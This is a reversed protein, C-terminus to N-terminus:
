GKQPFSVYLHSNWDRCSNTSNQNCKAVSRLRTHNQCFRSVQRDVPESGPERRHLHLCGLPLKITGVAFASCLGSRSILAAHAPTSFIALILSVLGNKIWIRVSERHRGGFPFASLLLLNISRYRNIKELIVSTRSISIPAALRIVYKVGNDYCSVSFNLMDGQDLRRNDSLSHSM